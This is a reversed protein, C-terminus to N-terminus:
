RKQRGFNSRKTAQPTVCLCHDNLKSPPASGTTGAASQMPVALPAISHALRRSGIGPKRAGRFAAGHEVRDIGATGHREGMVCFTFGNSRM